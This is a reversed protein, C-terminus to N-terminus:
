GVFVLAAVLVAERRLAAAPLAAMVVPLQQVVEQTVLMLPESLLLEPAM